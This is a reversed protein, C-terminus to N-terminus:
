AYFDNTSSSDPAGFGPLRDSTREQRYDAVQTLAIYFNIRWAHVPLDLM